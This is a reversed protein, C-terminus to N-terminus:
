APTTGTQEQKKVRLRFELHDVDTSRVIEMLDAMKWYKSFIPLYFLTALPLLKPHNHHPRKLNKRPCYM